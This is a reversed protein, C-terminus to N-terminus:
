TTNGDSFAEIHGSLSGDASFKHVVSDIEVIDICRVRPLDRGEWGLCMRDRDNM